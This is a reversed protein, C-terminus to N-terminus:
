KKKINNLLEIAFELQRDYNNQYDEISSEVYYDPEFIQPEFYKRNNIKNKFEIFDSKNYIGEMSVMKDDYYYYKYSIPLLYADIENRSVNGFCNLTTGIHTGVFISGISKLDVIAFRGSSFVYKDVLTIVQKGDLYKILPKIISSNGGTNGRIDVIFKTINNIDAENSIKKVFDLMQGEYDERCCSYRIYIVGDIINYSYNNNKYFSINSKTLKRKIIRNDKVIEVEFEKSDVDISPLSRLKFGNYLNNEIQTYLFENTFYATMNEIENILQQLPINNISLIEGYLLDLNDEDTRIIYLKNDIYKLRIPLNYDASKWVLRTHSDYRGFIKKIIVNTVYYLDYENNLPYKKLIEDIYNNLEERSINFYMDIHKEEIISLIKKLKERNEYEDMEKYSLHYSYKLSEFIKLNDMEEEKVDNQLIFKNKIDDILEEYTNYEHIGREDYWANEFWYYKNNDKYILFTHGPASDERIIQITMVKHEFNHKSFWDREFETQDVCIGCKNSLVEEPSMLSYDEYMNPTIEDHFNGDKDMWKYDFDSMFDLLYEPTKIVKGSGVNKDNVVLIM